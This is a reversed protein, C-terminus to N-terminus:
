AVASVASQEFGAKSAWASVAAFDRQVADLHAIGNRVAVRAMIGQRDYVGACFVGMYRQSCLLAREYYSPVDSKGYQSEGDQGVDKSLSSSSAATVAASSGAASNSSSSSGNHSHCFVGHNQKLCNKCDDGKV